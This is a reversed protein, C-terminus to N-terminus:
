ESYLVGQNREKILTLITEDDTLEIPELEIYYNYRTGGAADNYNIGYIWLERNVVHNPDILEFPPQVHGQTREGSSSWAFQNGDEFRWITGLTSFTEIPQYSLVASPNDSTTNPNNPAVVFRVVRFGHNLRGDDVVLRKFRLESVNGRLTHVKRSM